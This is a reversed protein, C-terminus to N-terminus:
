TVYWKAQQRFLASYEGQQKLLADHTGEEVLKGEKLVLIRDALKASGLRHTVLFGMKGQIMKQFKRYLIGEEIPDIASTPEDLLIWKSERYLGRAIAVRQWQGGSLDIGGFKRSLMTHFGIDMDLESKEVCDSLRKEDDFEDSIIINEKLTMQYRIFSQFVASIGHTRKEGDLVFLNKGDVLIEGQDPILVGSLIKVLTSKGAGNEGVVAITEGKRIEFSVDCLAAKETGPYRFSVNKVEIKDNWTPVEKAGTDEPLDFFELYRKLIGVNEFLSSLYNSIADNMFRIINTISSFVAAFAGVSISGDMMSFLLLFIVGLYGSLTLSRMGLEMLDSKKVAKWKRQCFADNAEKFKKYFFPYSGYIRNEKCTERSFIETEYYDKERKISTTKDIQREFIHQRIWLNIMLPLFILLISLILVPKLRWLYIGLVFFYPVYFLAITAVSNYVGYCADVGLKAKEMAELKEVDEFDNGPLRAIKQHLRQRLKGAVSKMAPSWTFNCVANLIENGIEFLVVGVTVLILTRFNGEGSVVATIADFLFQRVVTCFAYCVSSLLMASSDLLIWGPAISVVLFFIRFLVGLYTVNKGDKKM